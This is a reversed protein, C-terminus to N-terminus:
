EPASSTPNCIWPWVWSSLFNLALRTLKSEVEFCFPAIPSPYLESSSCKALTNWPGQNLGWHQLFFSFFTFDTFWCLWIYDFLLWTGWLSLCPQSLPTNGKTWWSSSQLCEDWAQMRLQGCLMKGPKGIWLWDPDLVKVISNLDKMKHLVLRHQYCSDSFWM